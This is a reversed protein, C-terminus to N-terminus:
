FSALFLTYTHLHTYKHTNTYIQTHTVQELLLRTDEHRKVEEELKESLESNRRKEAESAASVHSKYHEYETQLRCVGDSSNLFNWSM